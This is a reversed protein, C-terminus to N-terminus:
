YACVQRQSEALAKIIEELRNLKHSTETTLEHIQAKLQTISSDGRTDATVSQQKLDDLRCAMGSFQDQIQDKLQDIGTGEKVWFRDEKPAVVHLWRPSQLQKNSYLFMEELGIMLRTKDLRYQASAKESISVFVSSMLAILLNLLLVNCCLTFVVFLFLQLNYLQTNGIPFSGDGELAGNPYITDGRWILDLGGGTSGRFMTIFATGLNRVRLDGTPDSYYAANDGQFIIIYANAFGLLVVSWMMLFYRIEYLIRLVLRTFVGAGRFGRFYSLIKFWIIIITVAAVPFQEKARVGHLIAVCIIM